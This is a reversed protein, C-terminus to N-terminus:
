KHFEENSLFTNIMFPSTATRRSVDGYSIRSDWYGEYLRKAEEFLLFVIRNDDKTILDWDIIAIRDGSEKIVVYGHHSGKDM